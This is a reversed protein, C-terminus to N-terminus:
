WSLQPPDSHVGPTVEMKLYISKLDWTEAADASEVKEQTLSVYLFFVCM